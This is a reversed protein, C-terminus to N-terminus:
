RRAAADTLEPVQEDHVTDPLAVPENRQDRVIYLPRRKVEDYIRGVYEGILGVAILQLGGILLILITVTSFGPLYSDAFHLGIVVPILVFAVGAFLFGLYTAIQLPLHSFSAIADLSFRLMKRIPYKTEGAYRADRKYELRHQTFGVWVTMGRLFRNREGMSLLANLASRDLLRFDGSNPELDVQSLRRFVRYFGHATALKFATEGERQQRVMYVVDAGNQWEAVMRPIEEPPDQLDADLMAVADGRAHELGATLAAQHGFNRSLHVVRLRQDAAALRDLIAPTGDRCGDDVIILEYNFGELAATAREYFHEVLDEENYVPACVSLLGLTRKPAPATTTTTM